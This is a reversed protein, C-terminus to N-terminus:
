GVSWTSSGSGCALGIADLAQMFLDADLTTVRLGAAGIFLGPVHERIVGIDVAAGMGCNALSLVKAKKGTARDAMGWDVSVLAGFIHASPRHSNHLCFPRHASHFHTPRPRDM